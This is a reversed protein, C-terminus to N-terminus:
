EQARHEITVMGLLVVHATLASIGGSLDLCSAGDQQARSLRLMAATL